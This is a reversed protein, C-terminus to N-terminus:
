VVRSDLFWGRSDFAFVLLACVARVSTWCATAETSCLSDSQCVYWYRFRSRPESGAGPLCRMIRFIPPLLRSSGHRVLSNNNWPFLGTRWDTQGDSGCRHPIYVSFTSRSLSIVPTYEGPRLPFSLRPSYRNGIVFHVKVASYHNLLITVRAPPPTKQYSSLKAVKSLKTKATSAISAVSTRPKTNLNLASQNLLSPIFPHLFLHIEIHTFSNYLWPIKWLFHTNKKRLYLYFYIIWYKEM